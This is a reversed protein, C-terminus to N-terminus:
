SVSWDDAIAHLTDALNHLDASTWTKVLPQYNDMVRRLNEDHALTTITAFAAQVDANQKAILAALEEDRKRQERTREMYAAWVEDLPMPDDDATVRRHLDSAERALTDLQQRREEAERQEERVDEYAACLAVTGALVEDALAPSHDLIFGCQSMANQESKSIGIEPNTVVDREWRGNRRKGQAVLAMARAMARQGSSLPKTEVNAANIEDWPDDTEVVRFHPDLGLRECAALRNRGDLLQGNQDILIPQRMGGRAISECLSDFDEASLMPFKAAYPHIEGTFTVSM